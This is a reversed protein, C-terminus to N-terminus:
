GHRLEGKAVTIVSGTMASPIDIRHRAGSNPLVSEWGKRGEGTAAQSRDSGGVPVLTGGKTLRSFSPHIKIDNGLCVPRTRSIKEWDM